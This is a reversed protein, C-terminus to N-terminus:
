GQRGKRPTSAPGDSKKPDTPTTARPPLADEPLPDIVMVFQTGYMQALPECYVRSFPSDARREIKVIRAIPLGPAYVGDVGSTTLLDGEQIDANSPMFRLEIGGGFATTPDGYAVARTGTRPNLVPIAQERDTLLTVEASMPFVRTVQGLVGSEDMVPSGAKIGGLEGKDIVVRRNYADQTEYVVQAPTGKTTLRPSLSLLARLRMNEHDLTEVLNARQAMQVSKKEADAALTQATHLDEFYKAGEHAMQVPQLMVWQFPFLVTAVAKRLPETLKFRADAVMLFVALALCLALRVRLSPGQPRFTPVGSDFSNSSM